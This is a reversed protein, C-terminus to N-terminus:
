RIFHQLYYSSFPGFISLDELKNRIVELSVNYPKSLFSIDLEDDFQGELGDKEITSESLETLVVKELGIVETAQENGNINYVVVVLITVLMISLLLAKIKSKKLM